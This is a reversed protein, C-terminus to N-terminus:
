CQGHECGRLAAALQRAGHFPCATHLADIRRMLALDRAPTPSPKRYAASRSAPRAIPMPPLRENARRGGAGGAQRRPEDRWREQFFDREMTLEGIKARLAKVMEEQGAQRKAGNRFGEAMNAEAQRRWDRIQNPHVGHRAALAQLTDDERMAKKVVRTKFEASFRRRKGNARAM